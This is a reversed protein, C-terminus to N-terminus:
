GSAKALLGAVAAQVTFFAILSLGVSLGIYVISM